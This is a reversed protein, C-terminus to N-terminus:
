YSIHVFTCSTDFPMSQMKKNINIRPFCCGLGQRTCLHSFFRFFTVANCKSQNKVSNKVPIHLVIKSVFSNLIADYREPIDQYKDVLKLFENVDSVHGAQIEM